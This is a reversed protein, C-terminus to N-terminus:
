NLVRIFSDEEEIEENDEEENLIISSDVISLSSLLTESRIM